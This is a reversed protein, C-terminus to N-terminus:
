YVGNFIVEVENPTLLKNYIRVTSIVADVEHNGWKVLGGVSFSSLGNSNRPKPLRQFKTKNSNGERLYFGCRPSGNKFTAIAHYWKGITPYGMISKYTTGIGASMGGKFRNDFIMIARDFGGNDTGIIWGRNNLKSVVNFRIEISLSSFKSPSIDLPYTVVKKKFHFGGPAKSGKPLALFHKDVGQSHWRNTKPDFGCRAVLSVIAGNSPCVLPQFIKIMQQLIDRQRVLKPKKNKRQLQKAKVINQASTVARDLSAIESITQKCLKEMRGLLGLLQKPTADVFETMLDQIDLMGTLDHGDMLMKTINVSPNNAYVNPILLKQNSAVSLSLCFLFFM